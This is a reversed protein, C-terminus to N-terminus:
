AGKLELAPANMFVSSELGLEGMQLTELAPLNALRCVGYDCCCWRGIKVKKVCACDTLCFRRDPDGESTLDSSFCNKGIAVEELCDLGAIEVEKVFRFCHPGVDIRRLMTWQSFHLATLAEMNGTGYDAIFQTIHAAVSRLDCSSPITANANHHPISSHNKLM